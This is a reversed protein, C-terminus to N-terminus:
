ATLPSANGYVRDGPCLTYTLRVKVGGVIPVSVPETVALPDIGLGFPEFFHFDLLMIVEAEANSEPEPM